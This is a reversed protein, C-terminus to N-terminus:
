VGEKLNIKLNYSHYSTLVEVKTKSFINTFEHYESPINSLNPAEVLKESSAQIDSSHLCLEFNNSGPLKSVYLLAATGIIVINSQESNSMSIESTSRPVM